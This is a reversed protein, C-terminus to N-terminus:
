HAERIQKGGIPLGFLPALLCIDGAGALLPILGIAVIAWGVMGSMRVGVAILLLGLLGRILRGQPSAMFQVFKM